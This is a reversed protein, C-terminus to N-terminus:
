RNRALRLGLDEFQYHAEMSDRFHIRSAEGDGVWGGGRIARGVGSDAQLSEGHWNWLWERVNGSMDYIGLENPLKQGVPRTQGNNAELTPWHWFGDLYEDGSNRFYWGVNNLENSGSFEYSRSRQGGSAAYEWEIETPLRYGDAHENFTVVWRVDDDLSLNNPDDQDQDVSYVPELGALRSKENAFLIADYWSITEVPRDDDQFKSPNSGMVEVWERQTVLHQGIYFDAVVVDTGYLNSVTSVFSGGEVLIFGNVVEITLDADAVDCASLGILSIAITVFLIIKKRNM